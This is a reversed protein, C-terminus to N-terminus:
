LDAWLDTSMVIAPKLSKAASVRVDNKILRPDLLLSFGPLGPTQILEASMAAKDGTHSAIRQRGIAEQQAFVSAEVAEVGANLLEVYREARWREWHPILNTNSM